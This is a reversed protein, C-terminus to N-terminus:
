NSKKKLEKKKTGLGEIHKKHSDLHQDSTLEVEEM